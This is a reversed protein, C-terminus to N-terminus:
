KLLTFSFKSGSGLTSQVTLKGGHSEVLTKSIYLGLGIGRRDKNKIQTFREFIREKQDEPIGPGSDSVSVDIENATERATVTVSGNVPTFKLANGILNSLVQSIRDRDFSILPLNGSPVFSLNIVRASALHAHSEIAQNIVDNLQYKSVQLQIKGEVIREMDLIDSILRLATGANRKIIQIFQKADSDINAVSEEDNLLEIASLIAGIPNRLDHSVIAVFEERTTLASKTQSHAAQEKSLLGTSREVELDTKNREGLLNRDTEGREQSLLNAMLREKEGREFELASDMNSREYAIASDELKRESLLISKVVNEDRKEDAVSRRQSRADDAEKRGREVVKDTKGEAKNNFVEFSDDTKGREVTLSEDTQQREKAFPQKYPKKLHLAGALAGSFEIKLRKV